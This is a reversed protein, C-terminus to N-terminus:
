EEKIFYYTNADKTALADYEAQTLTVLNIGDLKNKDEYSMLGNKEATVIKYEYITATNLTTGNKNKFFMMKAQINDTGGISGVPSYTVQAVYTDTIVNGSGDKDVSDITVAGTQGNVSTVPASTIFGSDNTLQSTKTPIDGSNAKGSIDNKNTTIQAVLEKTIGSQISEWQKATFSSNNLSYEFEWKDTFKYRNYLTNGERDTTVVFAYDNIDVDTTPLEEVSDHTGRFTATNTSISSNVFEKDALKNTSSAATPIKEEITSIVDTTVLNTPKNILDNYSGSIAVASVDKDTLLSGDVRTSYSVDKVINVFHMVMNYEKNNTLELIFAHAPNAIVIDGKTLTTISSYGNVVACTNASIRFFVPGSLSDLDLVNSNYNNIPMNALNNSDISNKVDEIYNYIAKNQVPNTSTPSVSTDITLEPQITALIEQLDEGNLSINQFKATHTNADYINDGYVQLTKDQLNTGTGLQIADVVRTAGSEMKQTTKADLGGAFGRGASAGYGIAGGSSDNSINIRNNLLDNFTESLVFKSSDIEAVIPMIKKNLHGNIFTSEVCLQYERTGTVYCLDGVANLLNGVNDETTEGKYTLMNILDSKNAKTGIAKNLAEIVDKNESLVKAIEGLTDLSEPASNILNSIESKVDNVTAYASTGNGDNILESTKEVTKGPPGIPGIPGQPGTDGKFAGSAAMDEVYQRASANTSIQVNAIEQRLLETTEPDIIEEGNEFVAYYIQTTILSSNDIQSIEDLPSIRVTLLFRGPQKLLYKPMVYYYCQEEEIGNENLKFEKTTPRNNFQEGDSLEFNLYAANALFDFGEYMFIKIENVNNNGAVISEEETASINLNEDFRIIM